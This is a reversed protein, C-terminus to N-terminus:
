KKGRLEAQKLEAELQSLERALQKETEKTKVGKSTFEAYKREIDMRIEQASRNTMQFGNKMLVSDALQEPNLAYAGNLILSSNYEALMRDVSSQLAYRDAPSNKGAVVIDRMASIREAAQKIKQGLSPDAEIHGRLIAIGSRVKSQMDTSMDQLPMNDVIVQADDATIEGTTIRRGVDAVLATNVRNKVFTSSLLAQGRRPDILGAEIKLKLANQAALIEESSGNNIVATFEAEHKKSERKIAMDMRREELAMRRTEDAYFKQEQRDVADVFKDLEDKNFLNTHNSLIEKARTFNGKSIEGDYASEVVSKQASLMYQSKVEPLLDPDGQILAQTRILSEELNNSDKRAISSYQNIIGGLQLENQKARRTVDRAYIRLSAERSKADAEAMFVRRTEPDAIREAIESLPQKLKERFASFTKTGDVDDPILPENAQAMEAKAVAELYDNNAETVDLRQKQEYAQKSAKGLTEGVQSLADGFKAVADSALAARASSAIPVPSSANLIQSSNGMPIQPM